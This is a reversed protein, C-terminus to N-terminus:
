ADEYDNNREIYGYPRAIKGLAKAKYEQEQAYVIKEALSLNEDAPPYYYYKSDNRVMHELRALRGDIKKM